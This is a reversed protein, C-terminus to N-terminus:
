LGDVVPVRLWGEHPGGTHLTTVGGFIAPDRDSPDNHLLRAPSTVELDRGRVTLVLRSGAPYRLTTPLIEVDLAVPQGPELPQLADHTHWPRWPLSRQDCLKRHSARQWGMAVRVQEHAGTFIVERGDDRFARLVVFLDLDSTTSSVWVRLMLPGAVVTEHEFPAFSFDLGEGMAEFNVSSAVRPPDVALTGHGADLHLDTWRTGPLPWESDNHMRAGGEVDRIAIQIRPEDAWGNDDGRLYHNLFRKQIAVYHPLYFSEYHTGIHGFLWKHRSGARCFGEVNGRLHNGPGGWNAASLLPVEIREVQPSRDRFWEDDLVHRALDSPTDARNGVLLAAAIPQGTTPAGTERDRHTTQANGNQNVLVQRPWWALRFASNWIGGHRTADRYHDCAGEWPVIAALHPPRLAAVQWQKFALYSVGLLGVRGNSWPQVGAWEICEYYDQTERPSYLDLYGPSQGTGRADVAIIVFGDPVWREPDPMEWRLYRGSSGDRCLGPYIGNLTKWQSPYADEFHVDKGYVGFSMVVPYSGPVEPRYVNARLVAGDAMPIPTNKEIIM